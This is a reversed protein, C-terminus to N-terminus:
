ACLLPLLLQDRPVGHAYERWWLEGFYMTRISHWRLIVKGYMTRNWMHDGHAKYRAVQRRLTHNLRQQAFTTNFKPNKLILYRRIWAAEEDLSRPFDYAGLDAKGDALRAFLSHVPQHVRVNSDIYLSADYRWVANYRHPRIKVDRSLFQAATLRDGSRVFDTTVVDSENLLVTQWRSSRHSLIALSRADVFRIFDIGQMARRSLSLDIVADIDYGGTSVTFVVMRAATTPREM